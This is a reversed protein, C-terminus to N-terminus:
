LYCLARGTRADLYLTAPKASLDYVFITDSFKIQTPILKTYISSLQKLLEPHFHKTSRNEHIAAYFIDAEVLDQFMHSGYSLEPNYGAQSYAVECIVQFQSIESYSVPVGLEPSSTGIRGPVLLIAKKQELLKNIQGIVSAINPKDFYATEYYKQPDVIVITDIDAVKSTRMSAQSIDFLIQKEPAEQITIISPASHKLPRCQLIDIGIQSDGQLCLAFEIDVPCGYSKELMSLIQKIHKLFNNNDILGQCDTFYVNRFRNNEHLVSEADTDHSLILRQEKPSLQQFHAECPTTEVTGTLLSFVDMYRQSHKHREKTSAYLQAQPKDLGILRPYDGPTRNVARTGLGAVLRIMGAEPNIHEMFRYPNYSFGVGAALPMYYDGYRKGSIQQILLAMQEDQDLLNRKKRYELASPSLTSAYIKRIAQEFELLRQELSGQNSCFISEYKGSFANGFGDELFSSSRIILPTNEYHELMQRFQKRISEHFVGHLLLNQYIEVEQFSEQELRHKLRLPWCNNEVMYSYFIDTGIFFTDQPVLFTTADEIYKQVLNRGLLFGCAKGGIRGTGIMRKRIYIYDEPSFHKVILEKMQPEPTLIRQCVKYHETESLINANLLIQFADFYREWIDQSNEDIVLEMFDAHSKALVTYLGSNKDVQYYNITRPNPATNKYIREIRINNDRMQFDMFLNTTEIISQIAQYSHHSRLLPFFGSSKAATLLPCIISFFNAIMMDSAWSSQLESLFDFIFLSNPEAQTIIAYVEFTFSEFGDAADLPYLKLTHETGFYPQSGFCLYKINFDHNNLITYPLIYHQFEYHSTCQWVVTDGTTIYHRKELGPFEEYIFTKM